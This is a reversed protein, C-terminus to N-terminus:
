RRSAVQSVLDLPYPARRRRNCERSLAPFVHCFRDALFDLQEASRACPKEIYGLLVRPRRRVLETEAFVIWDSALVDSELFSLNLLREYKQAGVNSSGEGTQQKERHARMGPGM